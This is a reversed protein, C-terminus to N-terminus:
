DITKEDLAPRAAAAALIPGSERLREGTVAKAHEISQSLFYLIIAEHINDSVHRGAFDAGTSVNALGSREGFGVEQRSQRIIANRQGFRPGTSKRIESKLDVEAFTAKGAKRSPAGSRGFRREVVGTPSGSSADTRRGETDSWASKPFAIM